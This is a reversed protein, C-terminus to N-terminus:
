NRINNLFEDFLFHTDEPGPSAEPHYQVSFAPYRKHKLGEVSGDNLNVQTVELETNTVSDRIVHYGHNQSTMYVRDKLLDKVPHNAGRHGFKMKETQAGNALAFLQHGMCICFLPYNEQIKRITGSIQDSVSKPDGPGNSLIVGQPAYEKIVEFSSNWPLIIVDSDKNLLSKLINKKHGFDLMVIRKGNGPFHIPRNVSTREIQDQPMPSKFIIELNHEPYDLPAIIAKLVGSDRIIRTLERTDIGSIGPIKHKKLYNSLSNESRYNSPSECIDHVILGKSYPILSEFDDKCIGYNGILPYTLTIFQDCYSPDSIIEQYGTMATNFVIEALEFNNKLEHGFSDGIFRKGNELILQLKM